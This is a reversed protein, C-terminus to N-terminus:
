DIAYGFIENNPSTSKRAAEVLDTNARYWETAAEELEKGGSVEWEAVFDDYNDLSETGAIIQKFYDNCLTTLASSNETYESFNAFTLPKGTDNKIAVLLDYLENITSPRWRTRQTSLTACPPPASCM